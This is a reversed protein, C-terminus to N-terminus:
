ATSAAIPKSAPAAAHEPWFLAAVGEDAPTSGATCNARVLEHKGVQPDLRVALDIVHPAIGLEVDAVAARLVQTWVLRFPRFAATRTVGTLGPLWHGVPPDLM